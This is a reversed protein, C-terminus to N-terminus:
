QHRRKQHNKLHAKQRFREHCLVCQFPKEGTHTMM